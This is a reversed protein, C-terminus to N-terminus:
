LENYIYHLVYDEEKKLEELRQERRQQREYEEQQERQQEEQQQERENLSDLLNNNRPHNKELRQMHKRWESMVAKKKHDIEPLFVTQLLSKGRNSLSKKHNRPPTRPRLNKMVKKYPHFRNKSGTSSRKATKPM